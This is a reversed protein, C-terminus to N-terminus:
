ILAMMFIGPSFGPNKTNQGLISTIFRIQFCINIIEEAAIKIKRRNKKKIMYVGFGGTLSM